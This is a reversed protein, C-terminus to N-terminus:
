MAKAPPEMERDFETEIRIKVEDGVGPVYETMGFDSRKIMTSASFGAKRMKPNFPHTDVKNLMADLVVPKTVGLLTFDGTIKLKGNGLDEVKTSNFIMTPFKEVNFFDANKLHEDFKEQDTNISATQITAKVSSKSLDKEDLMLAGDVGTFDAFTKSFGLHDIEFGVYTHGLDFKYEDAAIVPTSILAATLLAFVTKKM